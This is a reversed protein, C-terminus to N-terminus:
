ISGRLELTCNTNFVKEATRVGETFSDDKLQVFYQQISAETLSLINSKGSSAEGLVFLMTQDMTGRGTLASGLIMSCICDYDENLHFTRQVIKRMAGM